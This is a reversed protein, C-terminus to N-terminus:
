FVTSQKEDRFFVSRVGGTVMYRVIAIDDILEDNKEKRSTM